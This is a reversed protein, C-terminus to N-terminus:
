SRSLHKYLTTSQKEAAAQKAAAKEEAAREKAAKEEAAKEAKAKMLALRDGSLKAANFGPSNAADHSMAGILHNLASRM